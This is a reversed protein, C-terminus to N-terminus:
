AISADHPWPVGPVAECGSAACQLRLRIGKIEVTLRPECLCVVASAAAECIYMAGMNCLPRVHERPSKGMAVVRVHECMDSRMLHICVAGM